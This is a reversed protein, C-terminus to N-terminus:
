LGDFSPTLESIFPKEKSILPERDVDLLFQNSIVPTV